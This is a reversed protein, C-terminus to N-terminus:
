LNHTLQPVANLTNYAIVLDHMTKTDFINRNEDYPKDVQKLNDRVSPMVCTHLTVIIALVNIGGLVCCVNYLAYWELHSRPSTLRRMDWSDLTKGGLTCSLPLVSPQTIADWM